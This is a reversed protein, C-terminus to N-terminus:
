PAVVAKLRLDSSRVSDEPKAAHAGAPAWAAVDDAAEEEGAYASGGHYSADLGGVETREDVRLLGARRLLAFCAVMCAASWAGICAVGVVAAALAQGHGYFAGGPRRAGSGPLAGLADDVASPLALLGAALLGWAGCGAHMAGAELPDDVKLRTLLRSLAPFLAGGVGGILLAAWPEVFACGATVSVLGALSGNLLYNLDWVRDYLLVFGLCAVGGGAGGLTTAMAARSVVASAGVLRGASGCNFGYWGTWLILTGLASFVTNHGPMPRPTGAADYRGIRPGVLYSGM